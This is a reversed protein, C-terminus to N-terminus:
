KMNVWLHYLSISHKCKHHNRKNHSVARSSKGTVCLNKLKDDSSWSINKQTPDNSLDDIWNNIKEFWYHFDHEQVYAIIAASDVSSGHAGIKFRQIGGSTEGDEGTLYERERTKAPAPLRKGEMVFFPEYISYECGSVKIGSEESPMVSLDVQRRGTQPQEHHFRILPFNVRAKVDLFSCLSPNLKKESSEQPRKPDNKWLPLSKIIFDVIAKITTEKALVGGELAGM